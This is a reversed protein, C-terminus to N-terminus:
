DGVNAGCDLICRPPPWELCGAYQRRVLTQWFVNLDSTAYRLRLPAPLHRSKLEFFDRRFWPRLRTRYLPTMVRSQWIYRALAPVRFACLCTALRATADRLEM